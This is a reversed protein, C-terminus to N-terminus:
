RIDSLMHLLESYLTALKGYQNLEINVMKGQAM